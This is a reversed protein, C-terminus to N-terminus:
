VQAHISQSSPMFRLLITEADTNIYYRKFKGEQEFVVINDNRFQQIHWHITSKDVHFKETLEQNTTGPNELITWLILRGTTNKLHAAMKQENDKFAGSNQFLRLFKGM